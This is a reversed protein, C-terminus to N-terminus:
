GGAGVVRPVAWLRAIQLLLILALVGYPVSLDSMKPVTSLLGAAFVGGGLTLLLKSGRRVPSPVSQVAFRVLAPDEYLLQFGVLALIAGAGVRLGLFLHGDLLPVTIMLIGLGVAALGAVRKLTLVHPSVAHIVRRAPVVEDARWVTQTELFVVVVLLVAFAAASLEASDGADVADLFRHGWFLNAVWSDHFATLEVTYVPSLKNIDPLMAWGGGVLMLTRSYRTEPHLVYVLLVTLAAGIAFHGLAFSM